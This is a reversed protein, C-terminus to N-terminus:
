DIAFDGAVLLLDIRIAEYKRRLFDLYVQEYVAPSFRLHDLYESYYDVNAELGETLLKPMERESVVSFQEDPRAVSLFLVNKPSGAAQAPAVAGVICAAFVAAACGVWPAGRRFILM